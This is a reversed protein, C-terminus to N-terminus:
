VLRRDPLTPVSFTLLTRDAHMYERQTNRAWDAAFCTILEVAAKPVDRYETQVKVKMLEFTTRSFLEILYEVTQAHLLPDAVAVWVAVQETINEAVASITYTGPVFMSQATRRRQTVQASAFTDPHLELEGNPTELSFWGGTSSPDAIYLQFRQQV